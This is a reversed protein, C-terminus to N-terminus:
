SCGSYGKDGSLKRGRLAEGEDGADNPEIDAKIKGANPRRQEPLPAYPDEGFPRQDDGVESTDTKRPDTSAPETAMISVGELSIIRLRARGRQNGGTVSSRM